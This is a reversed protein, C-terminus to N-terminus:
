RARLGPLGVALALGLVVLGGFGAIGLAYRVLEPLELNRALGILEGGIGVTALVAGLRAARLRAFAGEALAFIHGLACLAMGAVAIMAKAKFMAPGTVATGSPLLVAIVFGVPLAFSAGIVAFGARGELLFGLWALGLAVGGSALALGAFWLTGKSLFSPSLAGILLVAAGLGLAVGGLAGLMRPWSAAPAAAAPAPGPLDASASADVVAAAPVDLRFGCFRCKRAEDQISEACEPCKKM